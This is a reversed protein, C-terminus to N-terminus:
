EAVERIDLDRLEALYEDVSVLGICPMAGPVRLGGHAFRRALAIAAGCPIWPGHNQAAVLHWMRTSENGRDGLGKLEVFMAGRDSLLPELLRSLASLPGALPALSDLVRWRVLNAL